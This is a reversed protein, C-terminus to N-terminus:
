LRDALLKLADTATFIGLVKPGHAVIASGHKHEAMHRVVEALDQDASVVYPEPSMADEVKVQEASALSEVLRVDRDSIMGILAGGELVPLHRIGHERMLKAAVAIPQDRGITHPHPTMHDSVHAM